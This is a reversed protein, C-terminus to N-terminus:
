KRQQLRAQCAVASHVKGCSCRQPLLVLLSKLPLSGTTEGQDTQTGMRPPPAAKSLLTSRARPWMCVLGDKAGVARFLRLTQLTANLLGKWSTWLSNVARDWSVSM